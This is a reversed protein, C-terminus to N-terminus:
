LYAKPQTLTTCLISISFKYDLQFYIGSSLMRAIVAASAHSPFYFQTFWYPIDLCLNLYLCFYLYLHTSICMCAYLPICVSPSMFQYFSVFLTQRFHYMSWSNMSIFIQISFEVEKLIEQFLLPLFHSTNIEHLRWVNLILINICSKM